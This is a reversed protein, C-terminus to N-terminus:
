YTLYTLHLKMKYNSDEPSKPDNILLRNITSSNNPFEFRLSYDLTYSSTLITEIFSSVDVLYYNSSDFENAESYLKAYVDNGSLSTLQSISRNKQDVVYVALSDILDTNDSSTYEPYMKIFASLTTGDNELENLTNLTPMEVRMSVGTGSQLYLKNETESSPLIDESDTLSNLVTNSKDSTINNFIENSGQLKLDFHYDTNESNDENNLTYYLRITTTGYDATSYKFGLVTNTNSDSKITIGRFEDTLDNADTIEDDQIKDFLNEGFTYSLPINISDKKYPYPTFSQEGLIENSYELSSTNYFYDDDDNPEFVETIEHVKYTQVLTTDGYYYRDYHMILSISDFVADKDLDFVSSYVGFYSQATLNGFDNDQLAGVLIRSTGSTILSDSIITSTELTLTDVEFVLTNTDIFDQGVEYSTNEENCSLLVGLGILIILLYHKM